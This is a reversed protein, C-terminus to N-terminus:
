FRGSPRKAPILERHEDNDSKRKREERGSLGRASVSNRDDGNHRPHFERADHHLPPASELKKECFEIGRRVDMKDRDNLYDGFIAERYHYSM